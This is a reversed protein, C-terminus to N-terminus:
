SSNSNRRPSVLVEPFENSLEFLVQLDYTMLIVILSSINISHKPYAKFYLNVVLFTNTQSHKAIPQVQNIIHVVHNHQALVHFCVHHRTNM